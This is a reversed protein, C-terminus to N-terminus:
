IKPFAFISIYEKVMPKGKLSLYRELLKRSFRRIRIFDDSGLPRFGHTFRSENRLNIIGKLENLSLSEMIPHNMISLVLASDMLGVKRPLDKEYYDKEFVERLKQNFIGM